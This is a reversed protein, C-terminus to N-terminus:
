IDKLNQYLDLDRLDMRLTFSDLLSLWVLLIPSGDSLKYQADQGEMSVLLHRCLSMDAWMCSLLMPPTHYGNRFFFFTMESPFFLLFIFFYILFWKVPYQTTQHKRHWDRFKVATRNISHIDNINFLFLKNPLFGAATYDICPLNKVGTGSPIQVTASQHKKHLKARVRQLFLDTDVYLM